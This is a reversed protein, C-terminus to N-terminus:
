LDGGVKANGLVDAEGCVILTPEIRVQALSHGEATLQEKAEAMSCAVVHGIAIQRKKCIINFHRHILSM